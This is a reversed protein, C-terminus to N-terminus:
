GATTDGRTGAEGTMEEWTRPMSTERLRRVYGAADEVTMLDPHDEDAWAATSRLGEVVKRLRERQLAARTSRVIFRNREREPVVAALAELVDGPFTVNIRKKTEVGSAM